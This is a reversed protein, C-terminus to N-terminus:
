KRGNKKGKGKKKGKKKASRGNEEQVRDESGGDLRERAHAAWSSYRYQPGDEDYTLGPEDTGDEASSSFGAAEGFSSDTETEASEAAEPLRVKQGEAFADKRSRGAGDADEEPKQPVRFAMDAYERLLGCASSLVEANLSYITWKGRRVATVVGCDTLVKMHHSLTSQVIDLPELLEGANMERECLLRIIQLRHPDGLARFVEDYGETRTAETRQDM